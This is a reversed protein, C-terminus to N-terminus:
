RNLKVKCKEKKISPGEEGGGAKNIKTLSACKLLFNTDFCIATCFDIKTQVRAVM